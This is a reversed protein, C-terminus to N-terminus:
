DYYRRRSLSRRRRRRAILGASLIVVVILLYFPLGSYAGFYPGTLSLPNTDVRFSVVQVAENGAVDMARIWVNHGGDALTVSYTTALTLHQFPGGDVSVMYHSLGSGVDSGIWTIEVDSTPVPGTPQFSSLSPAVSDVNVPTSHLAEAVGARDTAAYQLVHRGEAISIPNSYSTSAGGDLRYSISALGSTTDTAALTVALQATFWGSATPNASFATSSVPALTDVKITASKTSEKIGNADTANYELLHSGDAIAFSAVYTGWPGADLRYQITAGAGSPSTSTLTVTVTSAYWGNAGPSGNLGLTTVPPQEAAAGIQILVSKAPEANGATDTSAYEVLHSGNGTVTFKSAYTQWTGGNIRYSTSAVGSTADSSTLTVNVPSAYWSGNGLTGELSHSTSPSTADIKLQSTNTAEVNGARDTSNDDFSHTGEGSVTVPSSYVTWSGGDVRYFTKAVGSLPDTATLTVKVSSRYWGNSGSTGSLSATTLPFESDAVVAATASDTLGVSDNVQLRATYRGSAPYAYQATLTGSWATDWTGDDQWDWRARLTANPDSDSSGSADFAIPQNAKPWSPSYTFRAVPGPVPSASVISFTDKFTSGVNSPCQGDSGPSGGPCFDTTADVRDAKVVWKTFGFGNARGQTNSNAGMYQEFYNKQAQSGINYMSAGGNGDTIQILGVGKTYDPGTAAICDSDYSTVVNPCNSSLALQKSRQYMHDHATLFIDVKLRVMQDWFVQGIECSKTAATICLKHMGVVVWPIGSARAHNVADTVWLYHSSNLGYNYNLQGRVGPVVMIFRALPNTGPYDFYYEYGYGPTSPGPIANVGLTFPCYIVDQAIDGPGSETTDHNGAIVLVDNFQGKIANCWGPEDSTYGLDGQALLFSANAAKMRKAAALMDGSTPGGFDGASVFAFSPSDSTDFPGDPDTPMPVLQVSALASFLTGLVIVGFVVFVRLRGSRLNLVTRRM